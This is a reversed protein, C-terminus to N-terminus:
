RRITRTEHEEFALLRGGTVNHHMAYVGKVTILIQYMGGNGNSNSLNAYIFSDTFMDEYSFFTVDGIRIKNKKEDTV